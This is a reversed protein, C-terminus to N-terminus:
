GDKRAVDLRHVIGRTQANLEPYRQLVLPDHGPVV